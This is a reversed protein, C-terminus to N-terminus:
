ETTLKAVGKACRLLRLEELRMYYSEERGLFSCLVFPSKKKKKRKM